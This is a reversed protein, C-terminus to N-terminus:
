SPDIPIGYKKALKVIRDDDLISPRPFITELYSFFKNELRELEADEEPTLGGAYKRNILQIRQHNLRDMEPSIGRDLSPQHPVYGDGNGGAPQGAEGETSQSALGTATEVIQIEEPTLQYLEYVIRDIQRDTADIQAQLSTQAHPTKAKSLQKHLALMREVRHVIQDHGDKNADQHNPVPFGELYQGFFRLYAEGAGELAACTQSFYFHVVKSNLIGLLVLDDTPLFYVTNAGFFGNKDLAFRCSTAIDPFVIKPKEM